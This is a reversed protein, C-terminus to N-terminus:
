NLRALSLIFRLFTFVSIPSHVIRGVAATGGGAGMSGGYGADAPVVILMPYPEERDADYDRPLTVKYTVPSAMKRDGRGGGGGAAAAGAAEEESSSSGEGGGYHLGRVDPHFPELDRYRPPLTWGVSFCGGSSADCVCVSM